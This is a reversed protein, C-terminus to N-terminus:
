RKTNRCNFLLTETSRPLSLKAVLGGEANKKVSLTLINEDSEKIQVVLDGHKSFTVPLLFRREGKEDALLASGSDADKRGLDRKMFLSIRSSMQSFDPPVMQEPDVKCALFEMEIKSGAFGQAPLLLAAIATLSKIM